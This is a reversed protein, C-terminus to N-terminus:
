RAEAPEATLADDGGSRRDIKEVLAHANALSGEDSEHELTRCLSALRTAALTQAGGKLTHALTRVSAADEDSVALRLAELAGADPHLLRIM